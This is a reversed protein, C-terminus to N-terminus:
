CKILKSAKGGGDKVCLVLQTTTLPLKRPRHRTLGQKQLSLSLRVFSRSESISSLVRLFQRKVKEKEAKLVIFM